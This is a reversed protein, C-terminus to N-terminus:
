DEAHSLILVIVLCTSKIGNNQVNSINQFLTMLLLAKESVHSLCHDNALLIVCSIENRDRCESTHSVSKEAYSTSGNNEESGLSPIIYLKTHM